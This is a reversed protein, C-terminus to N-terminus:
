ASKRRRKIPPLGIVPTSDRQKVMERALYWVNDPEIEAPNLRSLMGNLIFMAFCDVLDQENM